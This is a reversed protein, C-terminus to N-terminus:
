LPGLKGSTVRNLKSKDAHAEDLIEEAAQMACMHTVGAFARVKNGMAFTYRKMVSLLLPGLVPTRYIGRIMHDQILWSVELDSGAPVFSIYCSYDSSMECVVFEYSESSVMSVPIKTRHSQFPLNSAKLAAEVKPLYQSAKDAQGALVASWRELVSDEGYKNTSFIRILFLVFVVLLLIWFFTCALNLLGGIADFPSYFM